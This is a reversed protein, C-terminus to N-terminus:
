HGRVLADLAATPRAARARTCQQHRALRFGHRRRESKAHQEAPRWTDLSQGCHDILAVIVGDGGEDRAGQAVSQFRGDRLECQAPTRGFTQTHM